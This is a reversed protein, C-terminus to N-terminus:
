RLRRRGLQNKLRHGPFIATLRIDKAFWAGLSPPLFRFGNVVKETNDMQFIEKKIDKKKLARRQYDANQHTHGEQANPKRERPLKEIDTLSQNTLSYNLHKAISRCAKCALIPHGSTCKKLIQCLRFDIVSLIKCVNLTYDAFFMLWLQLTLKCFLSGTDPM